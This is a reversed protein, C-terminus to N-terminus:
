VAPDVLFRAVADSWQDPMQDVVDVGGGVLETYLFDPRMERARRAHEYIVDGTNTLILTSLNLRRLATGHDYSFAAHHGFWFPAAGALTDVVYRTVDTLPVTGCSYLLRERFLDTFHSGDERPAFAREVEVHEMWNAREKETAPLPGNLILRRIRNPDALAAETAVLAGTHHGLLDAQALGLGDLVAPVVRAYDAITPLCDAPDSEGFGPLDAAIADIGRKALLGLVNIFQRSSQPAQHLLILPRGPGCRRLHIQGYPGDVYARTIKTV